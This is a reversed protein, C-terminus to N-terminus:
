KVMVTKLTIGSGSTNSTSKAFILDYSGNVASIDITAVGNTGTSGSLVSSTGWYSASRNLIRIATSSDADCEVILTRFETFDFDEVLEYVGAAYTSSSSTKWIITVSGDDNTTVTPAKATQNSANEQRWGRAQWKYDQKGYNFLYVGWTNWEGGQYSKTEVDVLAGGVMQKASLPYVQIANKKLANFEVPSATGTPFWVMGEVPEAPETASFIYATIENATNVWITNEAPDTPQTEGGVVNFNLGAGGEVRSQQLQSVIGTIGGVGLSVVCAVVQYRSGTTNIDSQELEPFGDEASAYEIADVVQDFTEKSSTRTLDLTLVLRAFGSTADVVAWNQASPHRIQRGCILLQGPGMTLTSGSYSLECGYLIGDPLIARRIIADDSPLVKQQAFTVGTFNTSM